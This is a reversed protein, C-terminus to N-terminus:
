KIEDSMRISANRILIKVIILITFDRKKRKINIQITGSDMNHRIKVQSSNHIHKWAYNQPLDLDPGFFAFESCCQYIYTTSIM